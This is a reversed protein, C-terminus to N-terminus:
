IRRLLVRAFGALPAPIHFVFATISLVINSSDEVYFSAIVVGRMVQTHHYGLNVANEVNGRESSLIGQYAEHQTEHGNNDKRLVEKLRLVGVKSRLVSTM